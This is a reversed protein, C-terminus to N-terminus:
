GGKGRATGGGVRDQVIHEAVARKAAGLALDVLGALLSYARNFARNTNNM